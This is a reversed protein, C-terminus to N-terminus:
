YHPPHGAKSRAEACEEGQPKLEKPKAWLPYLGMVTQYYLKNIVYIYKWNQEKIQVLFFIQEKFM